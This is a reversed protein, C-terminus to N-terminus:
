QQVIKAFQKFSGIIVDGMQAIDEAEFSVPFNDSFLFQSSPPFEEDGEWLIMQVFYDPYIELEYSADGHNLPTAKLHQLISHFVPLKMGYSFALRKICRGDFQRLYVEGWPMERYTRFKGSGKAEGGKLLFRLTLIKAYISEELPYYGLDDEKHTIEFDPHTIQYETGMFRLHLTKTEEEYPINLRSAIEQPDAKQFEGLYHEWPMREKSDKEYQLTNM